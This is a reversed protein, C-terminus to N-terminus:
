EEPALLENVPISEFTQDRLILPVAEGAGYSRITLYSPSENPGTPDEYVEVKGGVVNLVWYRAIGNRAYDRCKSGRDYALTSDSVEILLVVDFPRPHAHRFRLVPGPVIVLDPEPEGDDMTIASQQRLRWSPGTRRQLVDAALQLTSDHRAHRTMKDVVWGEVLETRLAPHLAGSDMLRHYERVTFKRQPYPPVDPGAIDEPPIGLPVEYPPGHDLKIFLHGSLLEIPDDEHFVGKEAMRHYEDVTFRHLRVGVGPGIPPRIERPVHELVSM